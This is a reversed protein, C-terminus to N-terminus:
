KTSQATSTLAILADCFKRSTIPNSILYKESLGSTSSISIEGYVCMPIQRNGKFRLDPSGDTNTKEWTIGDRGADGPLQEEEAFRRESFRVTIERYDIFAFDIDSSYYLLFGPYLYLAGGNYNGLCPVPTEFSLVPFDISKFFVPRREMSLGIKSRANEAHPIEAVVDWIMESESVTEFSACLATFRAKISGDLEMEIPILCARKRAELESIKGRNGEVNKELREIETKCFTKKWFSKKWMNLRAFNQSLEESERELASETGRREQITDRVMDSFEHLSGSGIELSDASKIEVTNTKGPVPAPRPMETEVPISANSGPSIMHRYSLGTGPISVTNMIGNPGINVHFPGNGLTTSLGSKSINIRVGPFLEFSRRFRLSM